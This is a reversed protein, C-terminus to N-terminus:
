CGHDELAPSDFDYGVPQIRWMSEVGIGTPPFTAIRWTIIGHHWSNSVRTTFPKPNENWDDEIETFPKLFHQQSIRLFSFAKICKRVVLPLLFSVLKYEKCGVTQAVLARDLTLSSGPWMPWKYTGAIREGREQLSFFGPQFSMCSSFLYVSSYLVKKKVSGNM